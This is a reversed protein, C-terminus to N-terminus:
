AKGMKVLRTNASWDRWQKFTTSHRKGKSMFDIRGNCVALVTRELTGKVTGIRLCDGKVPTWRPNRAM